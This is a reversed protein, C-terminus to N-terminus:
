KLFSHATTDQNEENNREHKKLQTLWYVFAVCCIAIFIWTMFNAGFWSIPELGRLFNYPIFFIYEFLFQIGHFFASM